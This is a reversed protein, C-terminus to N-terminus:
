KKKWIEYKPRSLPTFVPLTIPIKATKAWYIYILSLLTRIRVIMRWRYRWLKLINMEMDNENWKTYIKYNPHTFHIKIFKSCIQAVKLLKSWCKYSYYRSQLSKHIKLFKPFGPSGEGKVNDGFKLFIRPSNKFYANLSYISPRLVSAYRSKYIRLLQFM